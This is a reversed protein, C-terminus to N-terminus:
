LLQCGSQMLAFIKPDRASAASITSLGTEHRTELDNIMLMVFGWPRFIGSELNYVVYHARLTRCPVNTLAFSDFTVTIIRTGWILSKTSTDFKIILHTMLFLEGEETNAMTVSHM